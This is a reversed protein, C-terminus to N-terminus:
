TEPDGTLCYSKSYREERSDPLCRFFYSKSPSTVRWCPGASTAWDKDLMNNNDDTIFRVTADHEPNSGNLPGPYQYGNSTLKQKGEDNCVYSNRAPCSSM